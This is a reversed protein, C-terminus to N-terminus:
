SSTAACRPCSVVLAAFWRWLSKSTAFSAQGTLNDPSAKIPARTHDEGCLDWEFVHHATPMYQICDDSVACNPSPRFYLADATEGHRHFTNGTLRSGVPTEDFETTGNSFYSHKLQAYGKNIMPINQKAKDQAFSVDGKTQWRSAATMPIESAETALAPQLLASVLLLLFIGPLFHRRAVMVAPEFPKNSM